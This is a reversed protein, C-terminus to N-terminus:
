AGGAKCMSFLSTSIDLYAVTTRNESFCDQNTSAWVAGGGSRSSCNHLLSDSMTLGSGVAAVAGGFGDSHVDTFNCARISIKALDYAYVVGGDADSRCGVFSVRSMSLFSGQVLFSSKTNNKCMIAVAHISISSCGASSFCIIQAAESLEVVGGGTVQMACPFYGSCLHLPSRVTAVTNNALLVTDWDYVGVLWRWEAVALGWPIQQPYTIALLDSLIYGACAM